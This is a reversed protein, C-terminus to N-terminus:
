FADPSKSMIEELLWGIAEDKEEKTDENRNINECVKEVWKTKKAHEKFVQQSSTNPIQIAVQTKCNRSMWTIPESILDAQKDFSGNPPLKSTSLSICSAHTLVEAQNEVLGQAVASVKVPEGAIPDTPEQADVVIDKEIEVQEEGPQKEKQKETKSIKKHEKMCQYELLAKYTEHNFANIFRRLRLQPFDWKKSIVNEAEEAANFTVGPPFTGIQFVWVKQGLFIGNRRVPVIDSHLQFKSRLYEFQNIKPILTRSVSHITIFGGLMLLDITDKYDKGIVFATTILPIKPPDKGKYNPVCDESGPSVPFLRIWTTGINNHESTLESLHNGLANFILTKSM